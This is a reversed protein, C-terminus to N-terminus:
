LSHWLLELSFLLPACEPYAVLAGSLLEWLVVGFSWVDSERHLQRQAGVEPATYFPTGQRINSAHTQSGALRLSLGFDTIKATATGEELAAEM